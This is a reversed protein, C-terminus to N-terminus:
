LANGLRRVILWRFLGDVTFLLALAIMFMAMGAFGHIIGQAAADGFHYTVLVLLIVRIVNTILAIPVISALLIANHLRNRYAMLYVYLLGLASLSFLSHLGSCADAVLLQYQGVALMVGDRAVPYGFTYLVGEAIASINHRLPGTASDVLLGPLPVAFLLFFLPFAFARLTDKGCVALLVGGIVAIQSASELLIVSQSRGVVYAVLGLFLLACGLAVSRKGHLNVALRGQWILWLSVAIIMPGHAGEDTSWLSHAMDRYTPGYLVALGLLVPWWVRWRPSAANKVSENVIATM